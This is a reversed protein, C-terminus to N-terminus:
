YLLIKNGQLVFDDWTQKVVVSYDTPVNARVSWDGIWEAECSVEVLYIKDDLSIYIEKSEGEDSIEIDDFLDYFDLEPAKEILEEISSCTENIYENYDDLEIEKPQLQKLKRELSTRKKKLKDITLMTDEYKLLEKDIEAIQLELEEM